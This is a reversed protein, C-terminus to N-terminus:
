VGAGWCVWGPRNVRAFLEVWPGPSCSEILKYSDEPKGSHGKGREWEFWTGVDNRLLPLSGRVGFMLHETQGRFYNGLGFSPKAWTLCTIYRFGWADLLQFGKPLSRNTIWLYIHANDEARMPLELLEDLTMTGYEPRGRGLQEADGEDGWDWPPDILITKALVDPMPPTDKILAANDARQQEQREKKEVRRAEAAVMEDGDRTISSPPQAANAADVIAEEIESKEGATKAANAADGLDRRITKENVDLARGIARQSAEEDALLRGIEKRQKVTDILDKLRLTEVFDNIREFGCERWRSDELLYRLSGMAKEFSYKTVDMYGMLRGHVTDPKEIQREM